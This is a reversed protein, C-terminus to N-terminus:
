SGGCTKELDWPNRTTGFVPNFTQSGAAFEPTNTKGLTIAGAAKLREVIVHDEGPINDAYIPSGFTTRIGRTVIMDKYAIPLGALPGPSAGRGRRRDLARAAKLAEEPLFTVIANVKPNVREVQAIFARMLETASLKRLRILRALKRASTFVLDTM